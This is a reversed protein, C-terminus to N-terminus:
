KNYSFIVVPYVPLDYKEHLRAFYSFMRRPFTARATAQNEVHILFFADHDLFRAKVVLDAVHKEGASIDTFVEKDLFEVPTNPDLYDAVDPLFLAVFEHFFTTLLEKFRQDHEM